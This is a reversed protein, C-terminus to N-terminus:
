HRPRREYNTRDAFPGRYDPQPTESELDIFPIPNLSTYGEPSSQRLPTNWEMEAIEALSTTIMRIGVFSVYQDGPITPLSESHDFTGAPTMRGNSQITYPPLCNSQLLFRDFVVFNYPNAWGNVIRYIQEFSYRVNVMNTAWETACPSLWILRCTPSSKRAAMELRRLTNPLRLTYYLFYDDFSFSPLITQLRLLSCVVIM